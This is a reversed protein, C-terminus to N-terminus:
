LVLDGVLVVGGLTAEFGDTAATQLRWAWEGVSIEGVAVEDVGDAPGNVGGVM